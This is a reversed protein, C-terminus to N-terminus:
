ATRLCFPGTNLKLKLQPQAARAANLAVALMELSLLHGHRDARCIQRNTESSASDISIVLWTLHPALATLVDGTLHSANTILSVEFGLARAQRIVDPLKQNHLLPEGGALNLRVADWSMAGRLPNTTNGPQFFRYLETLLIETKDPDRILEPSSDAEGWKAYCYRCRYNCAETLHWNIVLTTIARM